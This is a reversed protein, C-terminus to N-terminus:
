AGRGRVLANGSNLIHAPNLNARCGENRREVIILELFVSGLHKRIRRVVVSFQLALRIPKRGDFVHDIDHLLIAAVILHQAVDSFACAIWRETEKLFVDARIMVLQSTLEHQEVIKVHIAVYAGVSM